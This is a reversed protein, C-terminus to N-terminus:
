QGVTAEETEQAPGEGPLVKDALFGALWPMFEGVEFLKPSGGGVHKKLTCMYGPFEKLSEKSNLFVWVNCDPVLKCAECCQAATTAPTGEFADNYNMVVLEGGLNTQTANCDDAPCMIFNEITEAPCTQPNFACQGFYNCQTHTIFSVDPVGAIWNAYDDQTYNRVLRTDAVDKFLCSGYDYGTCGSICACFNWAECTNSEKCAACCESAKEFTGASQVITGELWGWMSGCTDDCCTYPSQRGYQTKNIEINSFFTPGRGETCNDVKDTNERLARLRTTHEKIMDWTADGEEIGYGNFKMHAQGYNWTWFLAGKLPGNNVLNDEVQKLVVDYVPNRVRRVEQPDNTETAKGFEELVLPKNLETAELIKGKVWNITFELDVRGWNDPWVHTGVFDIYESAHDVPSNQGNDQAWTGPNYAADCGPGYFGEYGITIMHNPDEDKIHKAMEDVWKAFSNDSFCKSGADNCRGENIINWAFITPDDKYTRGNFTNNRNLMYSIHNKYMQKSEEDVWFDDHEKATSSFNVYYNVTDPFDERWNDGFTVIVKM